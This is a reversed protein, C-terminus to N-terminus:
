LLKKYDVKNRSLQIMGDQEMKKLLRSIVERSSNLMNAIEQHSGEFLTEGTANFRDIFFKELREDLKKFAIDDITNLLEDFRHKYTYMVFEKWTTYKVMWQEIYDVPIRIFTAESEAVANINSKIQGLCCTLAMGCVEGPNLYYLLLEGGSTSTRFIRITGELVIPFSKIYKGEGMIMEGEDVSVLDGVKAIEQILNEELYSLRKRIIAPEYIKGM